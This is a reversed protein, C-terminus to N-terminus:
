GGAQQQTHFMLQKQGWTPYSLPILFLHKAAARILKKTKLSSHVCQSTPDIFQFDDPDGGLVGIEDLYM